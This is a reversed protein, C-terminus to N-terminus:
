YLLSRAYALKRHKIRFLVQKIKKSITERGPDIFVTNSLARDFNICDVYCIAICSKKYNDSVRVLGPPVDLSGWVGDGNPQGYEKDFHAKLANLIREKEELNSHGYPILLNVGCVFNDPYDAEINLFCEGTGVYNGYFWSSDVQDIISYGKEILRQQFEKVPGDIPIEEFEQHSQAFAGSACVFLFM